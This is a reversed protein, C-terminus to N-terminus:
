TLIYIFIIVMIDCNVTELVNDMELFSGSSQSFTASNRPLAPINVSTVLLIDICCVPLSYPQRNTWDM